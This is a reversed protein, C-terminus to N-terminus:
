DMPKFIEVPKTQFGTVMNFQRFNSYEITHKLVYNDAINAFKSFDSNDLVILSFYHMRIKEHLDDALYTKNAGLNCAWFNVFHMAPQKGAMWAYVPHRLVLVPGQANRLESIFDMGKAISGPEPLWKGPSYGQM